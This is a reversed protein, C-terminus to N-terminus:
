GVVEPKTIASAPWPTIAGPLFTSPISRGAVSLDEPAVARIRMWDLTELLTSHVLDISWSQGEPAVALLCVQPAQNSPSDFHFGVGSIQEAAPIQEVWRDIVLACVDDGLAPVSDAVVVTVALRGGPNTPLQTAVWGEDVFQPYQGAVAGLRGGFLDALLGIHALRGVEPRVRGMADLWEDLDDLGALKPDPAALAHASTAGTMTFTALMPVKRSFLLALREDDTPVVVAPEGKPPEGKPPEGATPKGPGTPTRPLTPPGPLTPTRPTVRGPTPVGHLRSNRSEATALLADVAAPDAISGPCALGFRAFSEIAAAKAAHDGTAVARRLAGVATGFESVLQDVAAAPGSVDSDAIGADSAPRLDRVDGVRARDILRRLENCLVGFEALSWRSGAANHADVIVAAGAPITSTVCEVLTLVSASTQGPDDAVLHVADFASLGLDVLTMTSRAIGDDVIFGVDGPPPLLSAVWEELQPAVRDRLGPSWANDRRSPVATMLLMLRHEIATGPRHTLAVEADPPRSTGTAIADLMASARGYNGAALQHVGEAIALDNAADFTRELADLALRAEPDLDVTGARVLDLLDIGDVPQDISAAPLGQAELVAARTPHIFRDDGADHLIREFRCGLLEGLPQGRNIGDFLWRAERVRSSSLDIAFASAADADGHAQWGCRLMTATAAQAMSPAHIYGQSPSTISTSTISTTPVLDTVVGYAGIQLGTPEDVRLRDLRAAAISTHWADLRHTGLGLSERLLWELADVDLDALRELADSVRREGETAHPVLTLTADLLQYLLPPHAVFQPDLMSVPVFDDNRHDFRRKLEALYYAATHSAPADPAQVLGTDGWETTSSHLLAQVIETNAPSRATMGDVGVYRYGLVVALRDLDLAPLPHQRTAYGELLSVVARIHGMAEGGPDRGDESELWGPFSEEMEKWLAIQQEIVADKTDGLLANWLSGVYEYPPEFNPNTEFSLGLLVLEYFAQPTLLREFGNLSDYSDVRRWLLRAPHPQTAMITAIASEVSQDTSSDTAGHDITPVAPVAERWDPALLDVIHEVRGVATALDPTDVGPRVPLIGYPQSGIRITPVPAGGTVHDVFWARMEDVTAADVAPDDGVMLLQRALVGLAMEFTVLRMAQSDDFETDTAFPLSRWPDGTGLGLLRAFRTANDRRHTPATEGGVPGIVPGTIPGTINRPSSSNPAAPTPPATEEAQTWGSTVDDTNNTPTAQPVFAMGVSARHSELLGILADGSADRDLDADVGTVTLTAIGVIAREASGTLDITVAMGAEVARDYDVMWAMADDVVVGSGAIDWTPENAAAGTVLMPDIARSGRRFLQGGDTDYATVVWQGPLLAARAPGTPTEPLDAPPKGDSDPKADLEPQEHDLPFGLSGDPRKTPRAIDAVQRARRRGHRGSLQQWAAARGRDDTATYWHSWFTSADKVEDLSPTAVDRKIHIQDPYIRVQLQPPDHDLRYRTEIRVPMLLLPVTADLGAFPVGLASDSDTTPLDIDPRDDLQGSPDTGGGVAGTKTRALTM